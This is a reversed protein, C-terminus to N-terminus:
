PNESNNYDAHNFEKFTPKIKSYYKNHSLNNEYGLKKYEKIDKGSNRKVSKTEGQYHIIPSSLLVAVKWKNQWLKEYLYDDGCFFHIQQPVPTYARKRFSFDWGQRFKNVPIAYELHKKVKRYNPHNTAHVVCGIKNNDAFAELTHSVFNQPLRVDNNLLCIFESSATAYHKNWLHCLPENFDNYTIKVKDSKFSSLLKETNKETSDNDIVHVDFDQSDQSILDQLCNITHNLCNKNVILISLM